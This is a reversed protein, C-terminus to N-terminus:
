SETIGKKFPSCCFGYQNESRRVEPGGIDDQMLIDKFMNHDKDISALDDAKLVEM